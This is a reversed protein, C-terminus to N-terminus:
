RVLIPPGPSIVGLRSWPNRRQPTSEGRWPAGPTCLLRHKGLSRRSGSVFQSIKPQKGSECMETRSIRLWRSGRKAITTAVENPFAFLLTLPPNSAGAQHESTGNDLGDTCHLAIHIQDGSPNSIM